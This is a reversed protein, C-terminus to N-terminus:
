GQLMVRLLSRELEPDHDFDQSGAATPEEPIGDAPPFPLGLGAVQQLPEASVPERPSRELPAATAEAADRRASQRRERIQSLELELEEALSPDAQAVEVLEPEEVVEVELRPQANENALWPTAATGASSTGLSRQRAADVVALFSDPGKPAEETQSEREAALAEECNKLATTALQKLNDDPSSALVDRYHPQAGGANGLGYFTAHGILLQARGLLEQHRGSASGKLDKVLADGLRVLDAWRDETYAQELEAYRAAPDSNPPFDAM